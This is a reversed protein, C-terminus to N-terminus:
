HEFKLQSVWPKKCVNCEVGRDKSHLMRWAVFHRLKEIANWSLDDIEKRQMATESEFGVYFVM